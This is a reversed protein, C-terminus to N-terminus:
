YNTAFLSSVCPESSSQIFSQKIGDWKPLYTLNTFLTKSKTCMWTDWVQQVRVEQQCWPFSAWSSGLGLVSNHDWSPLVSNGCRKWWALTCSWCRDGSSRHFVAAQSTKIFYQSFTHLCIQINVFLERSTLWLKVCEPNKWDVDVISEVGKTLEKVRVLHYQQQMAQLFKSM